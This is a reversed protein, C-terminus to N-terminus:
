VLERIKIMLLYIFIYYYHYYVKYALIKNRPQSYWNEPILPDFENEEAYKEFLSRRNEAKELYEILFM